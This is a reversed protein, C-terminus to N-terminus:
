VSAKEPLNVLVIKGEVFIKNKTPTIHTSATEPRTAVSPCTAHRAGSNPSTSLGQIWSYKTRLIDGRVGAVHRHNPGVSPTTTGVVSDFFLCDFARPSRLGPEEIRKIMMTARDIALTQDQPRCIRYSGLRSTTPITKSITAIRQCSHDHKLQRNRGGVALLTCAMM